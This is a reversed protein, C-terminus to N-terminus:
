WGWTQVSVKVSANAGGNVFISVGSASLQGGNVVPNNQAGGITQMFIGGCRNPFPTAFNFSGVGSANLGLETYFEYRQIVANSPVAVGGAAAYSSGNLYTTPLTWSGGIRSYVKNTTTDHWELGEWVDKGTAANREATTGVRRNGVKAAYDSVLNSDTALDPAGGDLFQPQNKSGSTGDAAM